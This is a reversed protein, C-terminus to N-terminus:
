RRPPLQLSLRALTGIGSFFSDALIVREGQSNCSVGTLALNMFVKSEELKKQLKSGFVSIQADYRSNVPKLDNPDLPQYLPILVEQGVIGGFMAAM